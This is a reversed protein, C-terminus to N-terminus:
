ADTVVGKWLIVAPADSSNDEGAIIDIADHLSDVQRWPGFDSGSAEFTDGRQRLYIRPRMDAGMAFSPKAM